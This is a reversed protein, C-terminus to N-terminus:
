AKGDKDNDDHEDDEDEIKQSLIEGSQAGIELEVESGDAMLVEVEYLAIGNELEFEAETSKGGTTQEAITIAEVMTIKAAQQFTMFKPLKIQLDLQCPSNQNGCKASLIRNKESFVMGGFQKCNLCKIKMNKLKNKMEQKSIDQSTIKKKSNQYKKMYEGKLQYYRKTAEEVVNEEPEPSKEVLEKNM